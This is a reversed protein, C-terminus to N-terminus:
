STFRAHIAHAEKEDLWSFEEMKRSWTRLELLTIAIHRCVSELVEKPVTIPLLTCFSTDQQSKEGGATLDLADVRLFPVDAPDKQNYDGSMGEGIYGLSVRVVGTIDHTAMTESAGSLDYSM